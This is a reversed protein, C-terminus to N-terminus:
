TVHIGLKPDWQAPFPGTFKVTGSISPAVKAADYRLGAAPGAAEGSFTVQEGGAQPKGAVTPAPATARGAQARWAITAAAILAIGIAILLLHSRSGSTPQTDSM